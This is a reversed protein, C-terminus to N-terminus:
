EYSYVEDTIILIENLLPNFIVDTIKSYSEYNENAGLGIVSVKCNEMMAMKEILENKEM